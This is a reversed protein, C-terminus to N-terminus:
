FGKEQRGARCFPKICFVSNTTYPWPLFVNSIPLFGASQRKGSSLGTVLSAPKHASPFAAEHRAGSNWEPVYTSAGRMSTRFVSTLTALWLPLACSKHSGQFILTSPQRQQTVVPGSGDGGRCAPVLSTRIAPLPRKAPRLPTGLFAREGQCQEPHPIWAKHKCPMTPAASPKRPLTNRQKTVLPHRFLGQQPGYHAQCTKQLSEM